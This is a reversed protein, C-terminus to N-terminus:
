PQEKIGKKFNPTINGKNGAVLSKVQNGCSRLYYLTPKTDVDALERQVRPHIESPGTSKQINLKRLHDCVQDENVTPPVKNGQDKGVLGFIQPSRPSCNNPFNSAFFSNLVEAKDTTILRDTDGTQTQPTHEGPSRKQNLYRYFGKKNKKADTALYVELQAKAKRMGDRCLM